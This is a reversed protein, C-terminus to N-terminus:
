KGLIPITKIFMRSENYERENITEVIKKFKSRDLCYVLTDLNAKITGSRASQHLLALEGFSEWVGINKIFKDNPLVCMLLYATKM